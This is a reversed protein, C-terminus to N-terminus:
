FRAWLSEVEAFGNREAKPRDAAGGFAIINMLSFLEPDTTIHAEGPRVQLDAFDSHLSQVSTM